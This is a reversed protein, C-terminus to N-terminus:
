SRLYDLAEPLRDMGWEGLGAEFLLRLDELPRTDGRFDLIRVEPNSGALIMVELISGANATGGAIEIEM